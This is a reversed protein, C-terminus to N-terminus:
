FATGCICSSTTTSSASSRRSTAPRRAKTIGTSLPKSSIEEATRLYGLMEEASQFPLPQKDAGLWIFPSISGKSAPTKTTQALLALPLTVLLTLGILV